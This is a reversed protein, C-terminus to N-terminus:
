VKNGGVILNEGDVDFDARLVDAGTLEKSRRDPQRGGITLLFKGPEVICRGKEDVMSMMIPTIQFRVTKKESPALQVRKIGCLSHRPTNVSSNLDNIYLQVVEDGAIEGVNEVEVSLNLTDGSQIKGTELHLNNYSFSTYSLGYGFPYLPEDEMFRYTRGEMRYDTFDPLQDVSKVFTIPLRGGPAADGFLVDAIAKGGQEGPYWTELIAPLNDQEWNLSLPSGNFLVLVVPKGTDHLAKLLELQMGPLALDQRDGIVGEGELQPSIGMCAIVVEAREAAILAETFGSMKDSNLACGQAYIIDTEGSVKERIGELATFYKAPTGKYNGLLVDKNDANPGVVAIRDLGKNLPLTSDENKLLVFSEAAMKYALRIHKECNVTEYPLQAYAVDQPPDFMGLRFRAEFLKRVSNDVVEESIKGEEVATKLHEYTSGCNLDCGNNIALASSDEPTETVKHNEHFDKVAGCDSVVYGKFGWQERLIEGILRKNACCPVGNVRNYAGMVSFAGGEKVCAEFAPLYTEWLDKDSVQADFENRLHEPGSHVAFHKPTAVLKLYHPDDGQLGKVFAVGLRGTLFPDEGYTEQGRGWRPDRFINVNPTWFTLGKSKGRDEHKVFEHHKARAEDSIATATEFMLESDFTAAMGIAQPFVTAVGARAVGHLCENWWNYERIGVRPLASSYNLTQSLKEELTLRSVLDEAREKASLDTDKYPFKDEGEENM